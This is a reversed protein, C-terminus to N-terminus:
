CLLFIINRGFLSTHTHTHTKIISNAIDCVPIKAM